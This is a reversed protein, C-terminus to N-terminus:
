IGTPKPMQSAPSQSESKSSVIATNANPFVTAQSTKVIIQSNYSQTRDTYSVQRSLSLRFPEFSTALVTNGDIHRPARNSKSLHSQYTFTTHRSELPVKFHPLLHVCQKLPANFQLYVGPAPGLATVIYIYISAICRIVLLQVQGLKDALSTSLASISAHSRVGKSPMSAHSRADSRQVDAM